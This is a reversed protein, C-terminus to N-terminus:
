TGRSEKYGCLNMILPWMRIWCPTRLLAIRIRPGWNVRERPGWNVRERPRDTPGREGRGGGGYHPTTAGRISKEIYDLRVGCM